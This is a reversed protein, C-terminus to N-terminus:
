LVHKALEEKLSEANRHKNSEWWPAGLRRKLEQRVQGEVMTALSRRPSAEEGPVTVTTPLVVKAAIKVASVMGEVAPTVENILSGWGNAGSGKKVEDRMAVAADDASISTVRPPAPLM